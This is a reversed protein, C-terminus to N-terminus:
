SHASSKPEETALLPLLAAARERAARVLDSTPAPEQLFAELQRVAGQEWRRTDEPSPSKYAQLKRPGERGGEAIQWDKLHAGFGVRFLMEGLPSALAPVGLALARATEARQPSDYEVMLHGGLPLLRLLLSFLRELDVDSIDVHSGDPLTVRDYTEAVEIWNYSPLPGSNHLGNLVPERSLRGDTDTLFLAFYRAGFRSTPGLLVSLRNGALEEGDLSSLPHDPERDVPMWSGPRHVPAADSQQEM